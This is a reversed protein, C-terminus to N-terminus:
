ITPNTASIRASYQKVGHTTLRYVQQQVTQLFRSSHTCGVQQAYTYMHIYCGIYIGAPSLHNVTKM